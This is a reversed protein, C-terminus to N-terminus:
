PSADPKVVRLIQDASVDHLTQEVGDPWRITVSDLHSLDGLGWHIRPDSSSLYSSAPSVESRWIRDGAKGTVRAGYAFVNPPPGRLDLKLWHNTAGTRNHLLMVPGEIDVALMDMRGDNDFDLTASGRGVMTRQVDDGLATVVDVFRKGRDSSLLSVPQRFAASPGEVQAANDYVHGNVFFLDPWGDNEFDIWKAGFGMRSKTTRTVGTRQSQDAFLRGGLGRFLVSGTGQWNTVALDMMGDRDFDAWDAGMAAVVGSEVQDVGALDAFNEFRLDGRNLMLDALLGDNGIYFDILGDDDLDSFALVLGMGHTSQMGQAQPVPQFQGSGGNRWIRGREPPYTTRPNCGSRIGHHECYQQSDPGFVVYNLIVLDLWQDGDLDIFGASSGWQGDNLPDLGAAETAAEFQLGGINRYLALRHYGTLLIDLRGDGNYDAVACGRWDGEVEALGSSQTVDEFKDGHINQFLRPHSNGVLLVDLWGDNDGDFAACGTGFAQLATLPRPQEPWACRLGLEHAADRFSLNSAAVVALPDPPPERRKKSSGASTWRTADRGPTQKELDISASTKEGPGGCGTLAVTSIALILPFTQIASV